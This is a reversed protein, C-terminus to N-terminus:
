RTNIRNRKSSATQKRFLIINLHTLTLLIGFEINMKNQQNFIPLAWNKAERQVSFHLKIVAIKLQLVGIIKVTVDNKDAHVLVGMAITKKTNSTETKNNETNLYQSTQQLIHLLVTKSFDCIETPFNM